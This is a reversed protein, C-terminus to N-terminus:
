PKPDTKEGLDQAPSELLHRLGARAVMLVIILITVLFFGGLHVRNGFVLATLELVLFKSGPLILLLTVIPIIRKTWTESRRLRAIVLHKASLVIELVIKLLIATLLTIAFSESIVRPFFEVFLAIVVTYVFVDAIDLSRVRPM